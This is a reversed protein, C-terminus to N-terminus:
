DYREGGDFLHWEYGLEDITNLYQGPQDPLDEDSTYVRILRKVIPADERYMVWVIPEKKKRGVKLIKASKPMLVVPDMISKLPFGKIKM